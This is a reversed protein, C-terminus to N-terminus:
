GGSSGGGLTALFIDGLVSLISRNSHNQRTSVPSASAEVDEVM